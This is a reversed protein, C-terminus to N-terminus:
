IPDKLFGGELIFAKVVPHIGLIKEGQEVFHGDLGGPRIGKMISGNELAKGFTIAFQLGESQGGITGENGHTLPPLGSPAMGAPIQPPQELESGDVVQWMQSRTQLGRTTSNGAQELHELQQFVVSM